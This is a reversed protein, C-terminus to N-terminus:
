FILNYSLFVSSKSAFKPTISSNQMQKVTMNESQIANLVCRHQGCKRHEKSSNIEFSYLNTKMM